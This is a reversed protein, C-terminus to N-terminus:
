HNRKTNSAKGVQMCINVHRYRLYRPVYQNKLFTCVHAIYPLAVAAVKSDLLVIGKRKWGAFQYRYRHSGYHVKCYM